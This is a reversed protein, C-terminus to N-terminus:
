PGVQVCYLTGGAGEQDRFVLKGGALAPLGRVDGAAIKAQALKEFRKPNARALVVSGNNKVILLKGDALILNATGFGRESWAVAGDSLRVCRLEAVGVDERGNIGYLYDGAVVPTNYQSSLADAKAWVTSLKGNSSKLLKAGIGYSATVFIREGIVQPTAANVTPGLRGFEARGLVKGASDIVVVNLRTVFVAALNDGVGITAPSSYSPQESTAKWLTRGSELDFAVIGAGNRGGVNVLLKGDLVLPTSGAGFYSPPVDYDAHTKRAWIQKGDALNL